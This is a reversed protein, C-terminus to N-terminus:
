RMRLTGTQKKIKPPEASPAGVSIEAEKLDFVKRFEGAAVRVVSDIDLTQRVRSSINAIVQDRQSSRQSEDVLRSTELALAAQDAIKEVLERDKETWESDASRKQIRL